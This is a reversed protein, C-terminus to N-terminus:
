SGAPPFFVRPRSPSIIGSNATEVAPIIKVKPTEGELFLGNIHFDYLLMDDYATFDIDDINVKVENSKLM